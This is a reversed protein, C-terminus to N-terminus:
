EAAEWVNVGKVKRLTVKGEAKLIVLHRNIIQRTRNLAEAIAPCTMAETLVRLVEIRTAEGKAIIRARAATATPTMSPPPVYQRMTAPQGQELRALEQMSPVRGFRAILKERYTENQPKPPMVPRICVTHYEIM